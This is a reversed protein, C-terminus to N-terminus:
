QQLHKNKTKNNNSVDLFNVPKMYEAHTLTMHTHRITINKKRKLRISQLYTCILYLNRCWEIFNCFYIYTTEQESGVSHKNNMSYIDSNQHFKRTCKFLNRKNTKQKRVSTKKMLLNTILGFVNSKKELNNLFFFMLVHM